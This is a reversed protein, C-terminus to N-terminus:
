SEEDGCHREYEGALPIRSERGSRITPHRTYANPNLRLSESMAACFADAYRADSEDPGGLEAYHADIDPWTVTEDGIHAAYVGLALVGAFLAGFAALRLDLRSLLSREGMM